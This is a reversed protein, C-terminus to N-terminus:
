IWKQSRDDWYGYEPGLESSTNLPAKVTKTSPPEFKFFNDHLSGGIDHELDDVYPFWNYGRSKRYEKDDKHVSPILKFGPMSANCGDIMSLISFALGTMKDHLDPKRSEEEWYKIVSWIHKLFKEKVEEDTFERPKNTKKSGYLAEEFGEDEFYKNNM